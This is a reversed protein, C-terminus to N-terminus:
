TNSPAQVPQQSLAQHEFARGHLVPFTAFAIQGMLGLAGTFTALKAFYASVAMERAMFVLTLDIALLLAVATLGMAWRFKRVAPVRYTKILFGCVVWSAALILAMTILLSLPEGLSPDLLKVRAIRLGFGASILAAFYVFGAKLATPM